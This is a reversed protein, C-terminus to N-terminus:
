ATGEGQQADHLHQKLLYGELEWVKDRANAYAIERGVKTDFNEPSVPSSEGIVRFGNELTLCCVTLTSGPFVYYDARQIVTDIHNDDIKTVM